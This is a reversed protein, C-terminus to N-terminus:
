HHGGNGHGGAAPAAGGGGSNGGGHNGGGSHDGGGEEEAHNTDDKKKMAERLSDLASDVQDKNANKKIAAAAEHNAHSGVSYPPYFNHTELYEAYQQAPTNEAITKKFGDIHSNYSAEAATREDEAAKLRTAGTSITDTLKSIQDDLSARKASANAQATADGRAMAAGFEAMATAREANLANLKEPNTRIEDQITKINNDLRKEESKWNKEEATQLKKTADIIDSQAKSPKLSAAYKKRDEIAKEEIGHIGHAATKNPKGLNVSLVGNKTVAGALKTQRFDFSSRAGRDLVGTAARGWETKGLRSNRVVDAMNASAAGFVRRGVFGTTGFVAGGVVKGSMSIAMNAGSATMSKAAILSAIMFGMVVLFLFVIGVGTSSPSSVASAFSTSGPQIISTLKVSVLILLLLVPAFFAEGLLRRWWADAQKQLPPLAMGAFGLPSVVLMLALAIARVMLMITAALLVFAAVIMFLALMIMVVPGNGGAIKNIDAQSGNLNWVTTLGTATIIVGSIGTSVCSGVSSTTPDTCTGGSTSSQGAAQYFAATLSNAVDVIAESAFLSFNLLVAFILLRPLARRVNFSQLDLIMMIGMFIFGFLLIINGIDRLIGWAILMGSSNAFYAGFRFVSVVVVWNFLLGVFGLVTAAIQFIFYALNQLICGFFGASDLCALASGADGAAKAATKATDVVTQATSAAAETHIPSLTALSVALMCLAIVKLLHAKKTFLKM